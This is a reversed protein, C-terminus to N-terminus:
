NKLMMDVDSKSFAWGFDEDDKWDEMNNYHLAQERLVVGFNIGNVYQTSFDSIYKQVVAINANLLAEGFIDSLYPTKLAEAINGETGWNKQLKDLDMQWQNLWATDYSEELFQSPAKCKFTMRVSYIVPNDL